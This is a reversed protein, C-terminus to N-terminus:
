LAKEHGISIIFFNPLATSAVIALVVMARTTKTLIMNKPQQECYTHLVLDLNLTLEFRSFHLPINPLFLPFHFPWSSGPTSGLVGRGQAASARGGLYPLQVVVLGHDEVNVACTTSFAETACRAAM